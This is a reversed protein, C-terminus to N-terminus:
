DTLTFMESNRSHLEVNVRRDFFLSEPNDNQSLPRSEGFASSQITEAEVGFALLARVVSDVRNESLRQNDNSAGRADAYGNIMILPNEVDKALTALEELAELYHQEIRDSNTQFHLSLAADSCCGQGNELENLQNNLSVRQLNVAEIERVAAQYRAELQEQQNQLAILERQSQNLHSTLVENQEDGNKATAGLIGLAAATIAGPPGAILGGLLAGGFFGIAEDRTNDRELEALESAPAAMATNVATFFVSALILPVIVNNVNNKTM